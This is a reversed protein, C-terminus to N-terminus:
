AGEDFFLLLYVGNAEVTRPQVSTYLIFVPYHGATVSWTAQRRTQDLKQFRFSSGHRRPVLVVSNGV